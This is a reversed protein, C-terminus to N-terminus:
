QIMVEEKYTYMTNLQLAPTPIINYIMEGGVEGGVWETWGASIKLMPLSDNTFKM